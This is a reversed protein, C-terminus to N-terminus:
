NLEGWQKNLSFGLKDLEISLREVPLGVVNFYCGNIREVLLMGYGQIAYAGAKDLSEGTAVYGKIEEESLKRFVVDTKEVFGSLQRGSSVISVSTMVTHSRGQLKALMRCAEKEDAPKGLVEGDIVVITDAGIVLAKPFRGSVEAAKGLAFRGSMAEPSEGELPVEDFYSVVAKFNWGLESLLARRRPSASALMIETM